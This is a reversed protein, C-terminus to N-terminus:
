LYPTGGKCTFRRAQPTALRAIDDVPYIVPDDSRCDGAEVYVAGETICNVQCHGDPLGTLFGACM